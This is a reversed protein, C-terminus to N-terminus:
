YGDDEDDETAVNVVVKIASGQEAKDKAIESIYESYIKTATTNGTLTLMWLADRVEKDANLRYFNCAETAGMGFVAICRKDLDIRELLLAQAIQQASMFRSAYDRFVERFSKGEFKEPDMGRAPFDEVWSIDRIDRKGNKM